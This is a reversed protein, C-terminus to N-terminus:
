RRPAARSTPPIAAAGSEDHFFLSRVRFTLLEDMEENLERLYEMGRFVGAGQGAGAFGFVLQGLCLVGGGVQALIFFLGLGVQCIAILGVMGQGLGFLIGVGGQAITILGGGGQAFVVVGYATQGIAIVGRANEGAIAVLPYGLLQSESTFTGSAYRTLILLAVTTLIVRAVIKFFSTM